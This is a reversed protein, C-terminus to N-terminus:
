AAAETSRRSLAVTAVFRGDVAEIRLPTGLLGALKHCLALGLGAHTGTTRAQDGRWFRDCVREIQAASLVCGTNSIRLTADFLEVRLEGGENAYSVANDVLNHVIIRLQERDTDLTIPPLETFVEIRRARARASMTALVERVLEDVEVPEATAVITGADLRALSLLTEVVRETQTCIALCSTLATRYREAPRDRDIAVEITARLGALPTRLEHAVEATLERERTLAIGLRGLLENLREVVPRLEEPTSATALRATLDGERIEAIASALARLPSLGFRIVWGLVLLCVLTGVAGVGALVRGIRAIADDVGASSRAVAITAAQRPQGALDEIDARPQFRLTVQRGREGRALVIETFAVDGPDFVAARELHRSALAASRAVVRARDDWVEYLDGSAASDRAGDLDSELTDGDQEVLAALAHAKAVLGEDLQARLTARTLVLVVAGSALFALSVALAAGVLLRKGISGSM